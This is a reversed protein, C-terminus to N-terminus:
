RPTCNISSFSHYGNDSETEGAVLSAKVNIDATNCFDNRISIQDGNIFIAFQSQNTGASFDYEWSYTYNGGDSAIVKFIVNENGSMIKELHLTLPEQNNAGIDENIILCDPTQTSESSYNFPQSRYQYENKKIINGELDKIHDLRYFDDYFYSQSRGRPDTVSTTGITPKYTYTTVFAQPLGDRIKQLETKLSTENPPNNLISMNVLSIAQSHVAGEIKAVLRKDNYGYLYSTIVETKNKENIVNGFNDISLLIQSLRFKPNAGNFDFDPPTGNGTGDWYYSYKPFPVGTLDWKVATASKYLTPNNGRKFSSRSYVLPSLLNYELVEPFYEFLYKNETEELNGESDYISTKTLLGTMLDYQSMVQTIFQNGNENVINKKMGLNIYYGEGIPRLLWYNIQESVVNNNNDFVQIKNPLGIKRNDSIGADYFTVTKGMIGNLDNQQSVQSYFVLLNDKSIKPLAYCYYNRTKRTLVPDFIENVIVVDKQFAKGESNFELQGDILKYIKITNSTPTEVLFVEKGIAHTPLNRFPNKKLYHGNDLSYNFLSNDKKLSIIKSFASGSSHNGNRSSLYLLNNGDSKSFITNSPYDNLFTISLDNNLRFLKNHGLIYKSGFIENSQKTDTSGISYSDPDIFSNWLGTNSNFYKIETQLFSTNNPNEIPGLMIDNGFGLRSTKNEYDSSGVHTATLSTTIWSGMGRYRSAKVGYLNYNNWDAVAFFNNFLPYSILDDNISGFGSQDKSIFNYDKNWRIFYEPNANANVQAFSNQGYWYSDYNGSGSTELGIGQSTFNKMQINGIIDWYYFKVQDPSTDKNHQILYNNAATYYYTGSSNPTNYSNSNNWSDGNWRDFYIRDEKPHGVAYFDEGAMLVPHMQSSGSVSMWNYSMPVTWTFGDNKLGFGFFKFQGSSYSRYLIAFFTKRHVIQIDLYQKGNVTQIGVNPLIKLFQDEWKNGNWTLVSVTLNGGNYPNRSLKIIYDGQVIFSAQDSSNITTVQDVEIENVAYQYSVRGKTPLIQHTLSGYFPSYFNEDYQFERFIQEDNNSNVLIVKELLRKRLDGSGILTYDFNYKYLFQQKEDYAEVSTLYKREYNEQYADPELAQNTNPEYYEDNTKEQYVFRIEEGLPGIIKKLYTAETHKISGTNNLSQEVNIYKYEVKNGFMDEVKTINWSSGQRSANTQNSDGIWNDWYVSWDVNAYTYKYGNEKIIEWKEENPYFYVKWPKHMTLRFEIRNITKNIAILKNLGGEFLYFTDDDRAATLKNDAVIRSFQMNWGLGLAGTPSFENSYKANKVVQAGDYSIGFSANLDKYGKLSILNLSLNLKGNSQNVSSQSGANSNFSMTEPVTVDKQSQINSSICICILFLIKKM